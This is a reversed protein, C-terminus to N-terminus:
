VQIHDIEIQVEYKLSGGFTSSESFEEYPIMETQNMTKYNASLSLHTMFWNNVSDILRVIKQTDVPDTMLQGVYGTHIRVEFNILYTTFLGQSHGVQSQETTDFDVTLANLQLKAIHHRNYVYSITPTIAALATKLSNLNTEILDRLDDFVETTGYSDPM